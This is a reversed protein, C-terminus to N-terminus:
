KAYYNWFPEISVIGYFPHRIGDKEDSFIQDIVKMLFGKGAGGDFWAYPNLGYDQKDLHQKVVESVIHADFDFPFPNWGEDEKVFWGLCYKGDKTIQYSECGNGYMKIAFKIADELQGRDGSVEFRQESSFM